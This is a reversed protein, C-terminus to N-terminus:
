RARGFQKGSSEYFPMPKLAFRRGHQPQTTEITLIVTQKVVRAGNAHIAAIVLPVDAPKVRISIQKKRRM